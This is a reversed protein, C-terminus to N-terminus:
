LTFAESSDDIDLEAKTLEYKHGCQTCHLFMIEKYPDIHDLYGRGQCSPCPVPSGWQPKAAEEERLDIVEPAAAKKRSFLAMNHEEGRAPIVPGCLGRIM